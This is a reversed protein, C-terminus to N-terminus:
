TTGGGMLGHTRRSLEPIAVGHPCATRCPAGSCSVCAAAGAGLRAYDGRALTEDGYDEFYMRTRLVEPIDVGAPCADSCEACGYRCQSAQTKAAYRNLLAADAAQPQTFGSAGLYEDIQSSETMSVVLADVLGSSLTWRFAAQAFTAGGTEYPRMENLKAGRLTKMAVVGVGKERAKTLVRPLDPQLAVFDFSRTFREYFAPDQGFNFGVLVVDVLAEDVARDLCEVLRGGHGSMGTFRIKGAQKARSAFENWEDTGLRDASNVAHNFYIEVRDTRLRRLSAELAAELEQRRTGVSCKTKSALVVQDRKGQLARGIAKESDGGRYSEATDFYDIGRDLAHLVVAEAGDGALRSSGFGIDPIELGTNGLAVRRRIRPADGPQAGPDAEARARASGLTLGAGATGLLGRRLFERRDFAGTSVALDRGTFLPDRERARLL